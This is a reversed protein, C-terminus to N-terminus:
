APVRERRRPITARSSFYPWGDKTFANPKDDDELAASSAAFSELAEGILRYPGPMAESKDPERAYGGSLARLTWEARRCVQFGPESGLMTRMMVRLKERGTVIDGGKM